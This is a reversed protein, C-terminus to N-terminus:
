QGLIIHSDNNKCLAMVENEVLWQLHQLNWNGPRWGALKSLHNWMHERDKRKRGMGSCVDLHTLAPKKVTVINKGYKINNFFLACLICGILM